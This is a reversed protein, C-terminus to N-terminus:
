MDPPLSLTGSVIRVVRPAVRREAACCLWLVPKGCPPERARAFVISRVKSSNPPVISYRFVMWRMSTVSPRAVQLRDALLNVFIFGAEGAGDFLRHKQSGIGQELDVQRRGNLAQLLGVPAGDSQAPGADGPPRDHQEAATQQPQRACPPRHLAVQAPEPDLIRRM